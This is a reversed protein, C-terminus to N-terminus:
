ELSTPTEPQPAEDAVAENYFVAQAFYVVPIAVFIGIFLALIGLFMVLVALIILLIIEGIYPKTKQWSIKIADAFDHGDLFLYNTFMLRIAIYLFVIFGILLIISGSGSKSLIMMFGPLLLIIAILGILISFMFYYLFLKLTVYKSFIQSFGKYNNRVVDLSYGLIFLYVIAQIIFNVISWLPSVHPMPANTMNDMGGRMLLASMNPNALSNFIGVVFMALLFVGIHQIPNSKFIEWARSFARSATIKKM